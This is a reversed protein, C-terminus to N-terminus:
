LNKNLIAFLEQELVVNFKHKDSDTLSVFDGFKKKLGDLKKVNESSRIEEKFYFNNVKIPEGVNPNGTGTDVRSNAFDMQLDNTVRFNVKSNDFGIVAKFEKYGGKFYQSKGNYKVSTPKTSYGRVVAGEDFIRLVRDAHVTQAARQLAKGDQLQAITKKIQAIYQQTTM